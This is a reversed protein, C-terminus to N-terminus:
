EPRTGAADGALPAPSAPHVILDALMSAIVDHAESSIHGDWMIFYREFGGGMAKLAPTPDFREAGVRGALALVRSRYQERPYDGRFEQAAPIPFVILRFGQASALDRARRLAAEIIRWGEEYSAPTVGELVSNLPNAKGGGQLLELRWYALTVLRSRKLFYILRYPTWKKLGDRAFEGTRTDILQEKHTRVADGMDNLNMGLIVVDPEMLPTVRELLDVEQVPDWGQVGTNIVEVPPAGERAAMRAQLRAAYTRDQAVGNGFTQSDGLCLVRLVGPGKRSPIEPSRFGLSNTTVPKDITFTHQHPRMVWGLREDVDYLPQPYLYRLPAPVVWTLVLEIVAM